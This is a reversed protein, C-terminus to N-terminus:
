ESVYKYNPHSGWVGEEVLYGMNQCFLRAAQTNFKDHCVTGRREERTQKSFLTVSLLGEDETQVVTGNDLQRILTAVKFEWDSLIITVIPRCKDSLSM